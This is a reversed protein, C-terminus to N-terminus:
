AFYLGLIVWKEIFCEAALKKEGYLFLAQVLQKWSFNRVDQLVQILGYFFRMRKALIKDVLAM